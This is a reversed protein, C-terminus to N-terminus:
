GGSENWTVVLNPEPERPKVPSKETGGGTETNSPNPGTPVTDQTSTTAQAALATHRHPCLASLSIPLCIFFVITLAPIYESLRFEMGQNGNM